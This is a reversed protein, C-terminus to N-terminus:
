RVESQAPLLLVVALIRPRRHDLEEIRDRGSQALVLEDLLEALRDARVRVPQDHFAPRPVLRIPDLPRHFFSFYFDIRSRRGISNRQDSFPMWTASTRPCCRCRRMAIWTSRLSLAMIFSRSNAFRKICAM